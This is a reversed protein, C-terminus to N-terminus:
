LHCFWSAEQLQEKHLQAKQYYLNAKELLKLAKAKNGLKEMVISAQEYNYAMQEYSENDRSFSSFARLANKYGDLAKDNEGLYQYNQASTSYTDALLKDNQSEIASDIALDSYTSFNNTDYQKSYLGAIKSLAQTQAVKNDAEGCYAVSSLYNSLAPSFESFEDYISGIKYFANAKLNPETAKTAEVYDRLAYGVYDYRDFIKGRGFHIAAKINSNSDPAEQLLGLAENLLNLSQADSFGDGSVTKAQLFLERAKTDAENSPYFPSTSPSSPFTPTNAQIAANSVNVEDTEISSTVEINESYSAQPTQAESIIIGSTPENLPVSDAELPPQAEKQTKPQIQPEIKNAEAQKSAEIRQQANKPFELLFDPNIDDPNAKLNVKQLFLADIWGAVVNSHKGLTKTIYEDSVRSANKLNAMIIEKSPNEKLSEKETLSLYTNVEDKIDDPANIAIITSKFDAIVQSINIQGKTYDIAVKTGNPFTNTNANQNKGDNQNNSVASKASSQKQYRNTYNINIPYISNYM